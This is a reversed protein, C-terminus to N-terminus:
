DTSTAAEIEVVIENRRLFPPTWPPNYQNLTPEGRLNIGNESLTTLLTRRYRNIKSSTAWGSFTVAAVLREPTEHLTVSGNEPTPLDDMSYAGPMTFSMVPNDGSLTEGVPATMAIKAGEDNGGFIYGALRQFGGSSERGSRLPTRAEISPAYRRLEVDGLTDLLDWHPEELAKAMNPILLIAVCLLISRLMM